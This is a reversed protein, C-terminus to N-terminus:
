VNQKESEKYIKEADVYIKDVKNKFDNSKIQGLLLKIAETYIKERIWKEKENDNYIEILRDQYKNFNFPYAEVYSLEEIYNIIHWKDKCVSYMINIDFTEFRKYFEKMFQWLRKRKLFHKDEVYVEKMLEPKILLCAMICMEIDNM